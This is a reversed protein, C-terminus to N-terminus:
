PPGQGIATVTMGYASGLSSTCNVASAESASPESRGGAANNITRRPYVGIANPLAAARLLYWSSHQLSFDTRRARLSSIGYMLALTHTRTANAAMTAARTTDESM